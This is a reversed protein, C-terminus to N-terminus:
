SLLCRSPFHHPPPFRDWVAWDLDSLQAAIVLWGQKAYLGASHEYLSHPCIYRAQRSHLCVSLRELRKAQTKARREDPFWRCLRVLVFAELWLWQDIRELIEEFDLNELGRRGRM